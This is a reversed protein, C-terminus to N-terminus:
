NNFLGLGIEDKANRNPQADKVLVELQWTDRAVRRRVAEPQSTEFQDIFLSTFGTAAEMMWQFMAQQKLPADVNVTYLMGGDVDEVAVIETDSGVPLETDGVVKVVAAFVAGTLTGPRINENSWTPTVEVISQGINLRAEHGPQARNDLAQQVKRYLKVNNGIGSDQRYNDMQKM